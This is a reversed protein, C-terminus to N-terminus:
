ARGSPHTRRDPAASPAAGPPRPAPWGAPHIGPAPSADGHGSQLGKTGLSPLPHCRHRGPHGASGPLLAPLESRGSRQATGM